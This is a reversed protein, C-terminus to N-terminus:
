SKDKEKRTEKLFAEIGAEEKRVKNYYNRFEETTMHKERSKEWIRCLYCAVIGLIILAVITVM